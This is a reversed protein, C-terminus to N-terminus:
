PRQDDYADAYLAADAADTTGDTNMDVRRAGADYYDSFLAMDYVDVSDDGNLNASNCNLLREFLWVDRRDNVTLDAAHVLTHTSWFVCPNAPDAQADAFDAWGRLHAPSTTFYENAPGPRVTTESDPVIGTYSNNLQVRRVEPWVGASTGGDNTFTYELFAVGQQNVIIVPHIRDGENSDVRGMAEISPRWATSPSGGGPNTTRFNPLDPDIVYWQVVWQEKPMDPTEGLPRVHHTAFIRVDGSADKALVASAFFSGGTQIDFDPGPTAAQYTSSTNYEFGPDVPMDDLGGTTLVRQAVHWRNNAPDMLDTEFWLGSLRVGTWIEDGDGEPVSVLFQANDEQEFPEQVTYHRESPDPEPLDAMRIFTMDGPAPKDGNLISKSMGHSTPIIAISGRFGGTTSIYAAQEDIAFHPKDVLSGSPPAGGSPYPNHSGVGEPYSQMDDSQLDFSAGGNGPTAATCTYYWWWETGFDPPGDIPVQAPDKLVAIHLRSIDKAVSGGTANEESYVMWLRGSQPHYVTQPDFFRSPGRVPDVVSDVRILPWDADAVQRTDRLTGAKDFLSIRMNSTSVVVNANVSVGADTNRNGFPEDDDTTFAVRQVQGQAISVGLCAALLAIAGTLRAAAM